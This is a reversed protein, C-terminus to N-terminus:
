ERGNRAIIAAGFIFLTVVNMSVPLLGVHFWPSNYTLLYDVFDCVQLWFFIMVEKRYQRAETAIIYSFIIITLHEFVFYVYTQVTLLIDHFPFFDMAPTNDPIAMFVLGMLLTVYLLLLKQV